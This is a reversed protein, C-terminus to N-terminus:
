SQDNRYNNNANVCDVTGPTVLFAANVNLPMVVLTLVTAGALRTPLINFLPTTSTPGAWSMLQSM